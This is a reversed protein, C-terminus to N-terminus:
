RSTEQAPSCRTGPWAPSPLSRSTRLPSSRMGPIGPLGSSKWPRMARGQSPFPWCCPPRASFRGDTILAVTSGLGMGAIYYFIRPITMLLLCLLAISGGLLVAFAVVLLLMLISLVRPIVNRSRHNRIVSFAHDVALAAAHLATVPIFADSSKVILFLGGCAAFLLAGIGYRFLNLRWTDRFLLARLVFLLAFAAYMIGALLKLPRAQGKYQELEATAENLAAMGEAAKQQNEETIETQQEALKENLASMDASFGTILLSVCVSFLTALIALLLLGQLVTMLTRKHKMKRINM